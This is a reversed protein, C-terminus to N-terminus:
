RAFPLAGELSDDACRSIRFVRPADVHRLIVNRRGFPTTSPPFYKSASSGSVLSIVGTVLNISSIKAPLFHHLADRISSQPDLIARRQRRHKLPIFHHSCFFIFHQSADTGARRRAFQQAAIPMRNCNRRIQRWLARCLEHTNEALVQHQKLRVFPTFDAQKMITARVTAHREGIAAHSSRPM